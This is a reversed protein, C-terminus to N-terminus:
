GVPLDFRMLPLTRGTAESLIGGIRRAGMHLYFIEAYPDSEILFYPYGEAKATTVCHEWLRRGLGKGILHPEVFMDYLFVEGSVRWFGYFGAPTGSRLLIYVPWDRLYEEGPTLAPACSEMFEADYGWYAKSRLSLATLLEQDDVTARRFQHM